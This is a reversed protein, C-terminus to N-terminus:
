TLLCIVVVVSTGLLILGSRQHFIKEETNKILHSKVLHSYIFVLLVCIDEFLLEFCNSSVTFHTQYFWQVM